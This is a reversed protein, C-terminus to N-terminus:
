YSTCAMMQCCIEAMRLTGGQRDTVPSPYPVPTYLQASSSSGSKEKGSKEKGSKEKGSKEKGSQLDVGNWDSKNRMQQIKSSTPMFSLIILIVLLNQQM